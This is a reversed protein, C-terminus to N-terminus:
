APVARISLADLLLGENVADQDLVMRIVLDTAITTDAEHAVRFATQLPVVNDPAQESGSRLENIGRMLEVREHMLDELRTFDADHLAQEQSRSLELLRKLLSFQLEVDAAAIV